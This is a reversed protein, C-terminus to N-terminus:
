HVRIWNSPISVQVLEGEIYTTFESSPRPIDHRITLAQEPRPAGIGLERARNGFRDPASGVPSDGQVAVVAFGIRRIDVQGTSDGHVLMSIVQARPRAQEVRRANTVPVSVAVLPPRASIVAQVLPLLAPILRILSCRRRM